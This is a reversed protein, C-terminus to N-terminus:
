GQSVPLTLFRRAGDREVQLLVTARTKEMARSLIAGFADRTTVPQQNVSLVRDGPRLGAEAAASGRVVDDILLGGDDPQLSLGLPAETESPMVDGSLSARIVDSELTGITVPVDQTEGSRFITVTETDGAEADAVARTLDGTDEIVKDNFSLIIDGSLIGARQAPSDPTVDAVILGTVTEMGLSEAIDATVPQISVGLWGRTVTGSEVIEAVIDQALESPISFGIGVNGGGPAVIATNVGIVTGNPDFLPGGSNGPNIPADIQLFDDYPGAGIDRGRASVIGATVTGSLGFPSGVAFVPDGVRTVDSDGWNVFPLTVDEIVKLVALDTRPDTGLVEAEYERGDRLTITLQGAGEIVHNNTVIIGDESIVFGSGLGGNRRQPGQPRQGQGFRPDNFFERFMEGLPGEPRTGSKDGQGGRPASEVNANRVAGAHATVKVVAPSVVEILDALNAPQTWGSTVQAQVPNVPNGGFYSTAVLTSGMLVALGIRRASHITIM